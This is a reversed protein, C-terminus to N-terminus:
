RTPHKRNFDAASKYGARLCETEFAIGLKEMAAAQETTLAHGQEKRKLAELLLLLDPTALSALARDVIPKRLDEASPFYRSRELKVIRRSLTNM